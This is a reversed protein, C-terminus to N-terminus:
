EVVLQYVNAENNSVKHFIFSGKNDASIAFPNISQSSFEISESGDNNIKILTDPGDNNKNFLYLNGANMLWFRNKLQDFVQHENNFDQDYRSLVQNNGDSIFWKKDILQAFSVDPKILTVHENEINYAFLSKTQSDIYSITNANLWQWKIKNEADINLKSAQLNKTNIIHISKNRKVLINEANNSWVIEYIYSARPFDSLQTYNGDLQKLWVQASSTRKSAFAIENTIPSVVPNYDPFPSDILSQEVGSTLKFIDLDTASVIFELTGQAQIDSVQSISGVSTNVLIQQEGTLHHKILQQAPHESLHYLADSEFSWKFHTILYPLTLQYKLQLSHMDFVSLVSQENTETLSGWYQKNPSPMSYITSAIDFPLLEQKHDNLDVKWVGSLDQWMIQTVDQDVFLEVPYKNVCTSFKSPENPQNLSALTITCQGNDEISSYVFTDNTLWKASSFRSSDPIILTATSSLTQHYIGYGNDTDGTFLLQNKDPSLHANRELGQKYTIAYPQKQPPQVVHEQNLIAFLLLLSLTLTTFGFVLWQTSFKQKKNINQSVNEKHIPDVNEKLLNLSDDIGEETEDQSSDQEFEAIFQYGKKPVTKIFKPSKANDNLVKRLRTIAKSITNDEVIVGQWIETSIQERTVHRGHHKILLELLTSQQHELHIEEDCYRITGQEPNFVFESFKIYSSV